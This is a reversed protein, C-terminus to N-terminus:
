VTSPCGNYDRTNGPIDQLTSPQIDPMDPGKKDNTHSPGKRFGVVIATTTISFLIIGSIIIFITSAPNATFVGTIGFGIAVVTFIAASMMTQKEGPTDKRTM